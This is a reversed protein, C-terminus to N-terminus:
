TPSINAIPKARTEVLAKDDSLYYDRDPLGLGAQGLNVSYNDPNKDDVGIGIDYISSPRWRCRAGHRPGCRGPTKCAPWIIWIRRSRSSAM